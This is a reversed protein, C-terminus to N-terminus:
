GNRHVFEHYALPEFFSMRNSGKIWLAYLLIRDESSSPPERRKEGSMTKEVLNFFDLSFKPVQQLHGLYRPQMMKLLWTIFSGGECASNTAVLRVKCCDLRLHRMSLARSTIRSLNLTSVFARDRIDRHLDSCFWSAEVPSRGSLFVLRENKTKKRRSVDSNRTASVALGWNEMEVRDCVVVIKSYMERGFQKRLVMFYLEVNLYLFRVNSRQM